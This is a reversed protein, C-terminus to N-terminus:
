LFRVSRYSSSYSRRKSGKQILSFHIPNKTLKLKEIDKEYEKLSDYIDVLYPNPEVVRFHTNICLKGEEVYKNAEEFSRRDSASQALKLLRTSEMLTYGMDADANVGDEMDKKNTTPKVVSEISQTIQEEGTLVNQYNIKSNFVIDGKYDERVKFKILIANQQEAFIDTLKIYIKNDKVNCPYEYVEQFKVAEYPFEIQITTNKAILAKMDDFEKTFIDALEQPSSIFHYFGGGEISIRTMLDENYDSGVGITSLTIDNEQYQEKVIKAIDSPNVTGVNALGDSLLIVRNIIGNDGVDMKPKSKNVKEFGKQMGGCLNTAGNAYISEVKEHLLSKNAGSTPECVVEVEDNYQIMSIMDKEGLQDIAFNIAKKTNAIKDGGMSGSRDIVLSLNFVPREKEVYYEQGQIFVYLYIEKTEDNYDWYSNRAAASFYLSNGALPKRDAIKTYQKRNKLPKLDNKPSDYIEDDIQSYACHSVILLLLTIITRTLLNQTKM